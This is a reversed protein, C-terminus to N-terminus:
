ARADGGPKLWPQALYALRRAERSVRAVTDLVLGGVASLGALLMLASALIATPFRPVLGTEIFTLVVPMGLAISAAALLAALTLFYRLPRCDKFLRLITALIRVGDRVTRLKSFSGEPRTTFPTPIETAPLRLELAHITMEAEIEFGSAELPFSKVFRRSFIRYGSFIDDFKQDFLFAVTRNFLRNGLHHGQRYAGAGGDDRAGVVMDLREDLLRQILMPASPVHYTEDADTMVYIDADIDAFMRRVVNGKGQRPEARVDAGAKRAVEATGDTSNNDYVYIRANPLHTRVSAVVNAIALAESRFLV